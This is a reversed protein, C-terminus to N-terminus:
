NLRAPSIEAAKLKKEVDKRRAVNRRARTAIRYAVSYLWSGVAERQRISSARRALVVFVAQFADEADQEHHLVRRCVGWITRGHREVLRTFAIEDQDAVFRELLQQDTVGIADAGSHSRSASHIAAM